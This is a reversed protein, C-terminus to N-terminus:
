AADKGSKQALREEALFGDLWQEYRPSQNEATWDHGAEWRLKYYDAGAAYRHYDRRGKLDYHDAGAEDAEAILADLEAIRLLYDYAGM